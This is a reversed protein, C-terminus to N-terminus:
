EFTPTLIYELIIEKHFISLLIYCPLLSVSITEHGNRIDTLVNSEKLGQDM